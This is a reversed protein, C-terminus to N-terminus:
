YTCNEITKMEIESRGCRTRRKSDVHTERKISVVDDRKDM